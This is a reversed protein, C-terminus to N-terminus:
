HRRRRRGASDPLPQRRRARRREIAVAVYHPLKEGLTRRWNDPWDDYNVDWPADFECDFIAVADPHRPESHSTAVPALILLALLSSLSSM